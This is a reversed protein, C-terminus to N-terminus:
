VNFKSKFKGFKLFTKEVYPHFTLKTLRIIIEVKIEPFLARLLSKLGCTVLAVIVLLVLAFHTRCPVQLFQIRASM